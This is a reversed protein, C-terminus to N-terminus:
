DAKAKAKREKKDRSYEASEFYVDRAFQHVEQDEIQGFDEQFRPRYSAANKKKSNSM